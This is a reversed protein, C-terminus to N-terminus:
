LLDKRIKTINKVFKNGEM